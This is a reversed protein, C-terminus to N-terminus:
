PDIINIINNFINNSLDQKLIWPAINIALKNEKIKRECECVTTPAERPSIEILDWVDKEIFM